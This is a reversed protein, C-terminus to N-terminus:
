RHVIHNSRVYAMFALKPADATWHIPFQFDTYKYFVRPAPLIDKKDYGTTPKAYHFWGDIKLVVCELLIFRFGENTVYYLQYPSETRKLIWMAEQLSDKLEKYYRIYQRSEEVYNLITDLRNMSGIQMPSSELSSTPMMLRYMINEFSKRPILADKYYTNFFQSMNNSIIDDITVSSPRMSTSAGRFNDEHCRKTIFISKDQTYIISQAYGGDLGLYTVPLLLFTVKDDSYIQARYQLALELQYQQKKYEASDRVEFTEAIRPVLEEENQSSSHNNTTNTSCATLGINILVSIVYLYQKM